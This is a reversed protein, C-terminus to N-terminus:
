NCLSNCLFFDFISIVQGEGLVKANLDNDIKLKQFLSIHVFVQLLKCSRRNDNTEFRYQQSVQFIEAVSDKVATVTQIAAKYKSEYQVSKLEAQM